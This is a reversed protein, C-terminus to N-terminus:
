RQVFVFAVNVVTEARAGPFRWAAVREEVCRRLDLYGPPEAETVVSRVEGSPEVRITVPVRVSTPDGPAAGVAYSMCTDVVSNRHRQITRKVAAENLGDGPPSETRAEVRKHEGRRITLTETSRKGNQVFTVEHTGPEVRISELPTTGFPIGDLLVMSPESATVTLRATSSRVTGSTRTTSSPGRTSSDNPVRPSHRAAPTAEPLPAPAGREPTVKELGPSYLAPSTIPKPAEKAGPDGSGPVPELGRPPEGRTPSAPPPADASREPAAPPSADSARQRAGDHREPASPPRAGLALRSWDFAARSSSAGLTFTALAVVAPLALMVTLAKTRRRPARGVHPPALPVTDTRHSRPEILPWDRLSPAAVLLM